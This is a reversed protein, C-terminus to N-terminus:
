ESVKKNYEECWIDYNDLIFDYDSDTIENDSALSRIGEIIDEYEEYTDLLDFVIEKLYENRM